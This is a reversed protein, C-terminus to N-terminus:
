QSCSDRLMLNRQIPRKNGPHTTINCLSQSWDGSSPSFIESLLTKRCRNSAQCEDLADVIIFAKSYIAAVSKLTKSIEQLLPRTQKPRHLEYLNKVAKPLSPQGQTLQKLLSQIMDEANHKNQFNCYIYAVGVTTDFRVQEDIHKIVISTLITKGAGPIGPCFLTKSSGNRWEQFEKSNLLWEGTGPQRRRLSDSQQSGYESTTIWQLIELDEKRDLKSM